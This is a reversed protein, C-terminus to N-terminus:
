FLSNKLYKFKVIANNWDNKDDIDITKHNSIKFPLTEKSYMEIKKQYAETNGWYFMGADHYVKALDQSRRLKSNKMIMSIKNNKLTFSRQIPYSFNTVAFCFKKKSKIFLNYSKTLYIHKLLVATPLIYCINKPRAYLKLIEKICTRISKLVPTFDSACKSNRNIIIINKKKKYLKKIKIDDTYVFIKDFKKSKIAQEIPWQIIPKGCFNKSNKNKIRKSNKRAPIICYNKM